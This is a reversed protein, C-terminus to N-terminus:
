QLVRHRRLRHQMEDRSSAEAPTMPPPPAEESANGDSSDSQDKPLEIAVRKGGHDVVARDKGVELLKGSGPIMEGVRYVSQEGRADAIIAYPKGKTSQSVGILTLHLDEVVVEPAPAPPPVLNFIDREVIAQYEARPRNASSDNAVKSRTRPVPVEVSAHRLMVVDNLALAAFYALVTVLLMNVAMIYRDSLHLEMGETGFGALM